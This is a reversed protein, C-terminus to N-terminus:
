VAFMASDFCDFIQQHEATQFNATQQV